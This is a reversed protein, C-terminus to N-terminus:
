SGARCPHRRAGLRATRTGDFKHRENAAPSTKVSRPFASVCIRRGARAEDASSADLQGCELREDIDRGSWWGAFTPLDHTSFSAVSGAPPPELVPEDAGRIAFQAVYSRRIGTGADGRPGRRRRHRPGRRHHRCPPATGRDAVVALLEDFPMKVYVGDRPEGGSPIWFLRQLGMIHDIRLM